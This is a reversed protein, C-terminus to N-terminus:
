FGYAAADVILYAITAHAPAIRQLVCDLATLDPLCTIPMGTEYYGTVPGINQGATYAPSTALTVLFLLEGNPSPGGGAMGTEICGTTPIDDLPCAISWGISAAVAEYYGCTVGGVAAVKACLDAFPDCADPLGYEANWLDLTESATACFFERKLDCIRQNSFALVAAVANWFRHLTTGPQPGGESTRWARGRPLLALLQPLIDEQTPCIDAGAQGACSM